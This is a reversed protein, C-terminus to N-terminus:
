DIPRLAALPSPQPRSPLRPTFTMENPVDSTMARSSIGESKPVYAIASVAICNAMWTLSRPMMGAVMWHRPRSSSTAGVADVSATM